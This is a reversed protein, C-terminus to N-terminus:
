NGQASAARAEELAEELRRSALTRAEEVRAILAGRTEERTQSCSTQARQQAEAKDDPSAVATLYESAATCYHAYRGECSALAADAVRSAPGRSGAMADGHNYVCELYNTLASKAGSEMERASPGMAGTTACGVSLFAAVALISPLCTRM